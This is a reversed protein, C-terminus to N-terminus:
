AVVWVTCGKALHTIKNSVSGVIESSRHCQIELQGIRLPFREHFVLKLIKNDGSELHRCRKVWYKPDELGFRREAEDRYAFYHDDQLRIIDGYGIRTFETTDTVLRGCRSSAFQPCYTQLLDRVQAQEQAREDLPMPM